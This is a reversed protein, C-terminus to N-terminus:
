RRCAARAPAVLRMHARVQYSLMVHKGQKVWESFIGRGASPMMGADASSGGHSGRSTAVADPETTAPQAKPQPAAIAASAGASPQHRDSSAPPAPAPAPTPAATPTVSALASDDHPAATSAGCGMRYGGWCGGANRRRRKPFLM